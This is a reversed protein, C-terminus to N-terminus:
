ASFSGDDLEPEQEMALEAHCKETISITPAISNPEFWIMGCSNCVPNGYVAISDPMAIIGPPMAMSTIIGTAPCFM